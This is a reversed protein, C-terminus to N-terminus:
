AFIAHTVRPLPMFNTVRKGLQMKNKNKGRLSDKRWPAFLNAAFPSPSPSVKCGRQM